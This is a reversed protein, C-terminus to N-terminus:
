LYNLMGISQDDIPENDMRTVKRKIQITMVDSKNGKYDSATYLM